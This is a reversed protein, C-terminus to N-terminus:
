QAVKFPEDFSKTRTWLAGSMLLPVFDQDAVPQSLWGHWIPETNAGRRDIIVVHNISAYGGTEYEIVAWHDCVAGIVFRSRPLDPVVLCSGNFEQGRDAMTEGRWAAIHAAVDGPLQSRREVTEYRGTSVISLQPQFPTQVADPPLRNAGLAVRVDETAMLHTPHEKTGCSVIFLALLVLMGTVDKM